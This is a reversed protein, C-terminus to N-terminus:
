LNIVKYKYKSKLKESVISRHCAEACEEVCFLAIKKAGRLKLNEIFTDFDFRSLIQKKYELIFVDGLKNRTKKIEKNCKDAEKQLNRIEPSPALLPIYEYKINLSSLKAQLYNSNAFIYQSGRVGRRQRIDCFTDIKHSILKNFFTQENSGYVGITYFEM